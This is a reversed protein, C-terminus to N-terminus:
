IIQFKFFTPLESANAFCKGPQIITVMNACVNIAQDDYRILFFPESVVYWKSCLFM